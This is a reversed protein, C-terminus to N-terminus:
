LHDLTMEVARGLNQQSPQKEPQGVHSASFGATEAM